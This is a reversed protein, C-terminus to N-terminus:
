RPNGAGGPRGENLTTPWRPGRRPRGLTAPGVPGAKTSRHDPAGRRGRLRRPQRGWRAPRRQARVGAVSALMGGPRTAPGVPGAKTSRTIVLREPVDLKLPPQRGWRAPRRQADLPTTAAVMEVEGPTAPGVPGAKTSRPYRAVRDNGPRLTAPGVPGAKTSRELPDVGVPREIHPQRGWRAPRRQAISFRGSGGPSAAKPQRGWRAPRRQAHLVIGVLSQTALTAPGVPGAKTSRAMPLHLVRRDRRPNGAGGPRGENLTRTPPRGGGPSRRPNGAGGPRGENLTSPRPTGRMTMASPQRGWRAPRRQAVSSVVRM